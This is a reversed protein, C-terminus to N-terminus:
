KPTKVRAVQKNGYTDKPVLAKSVCGQYMTQEPSNIRIICLPNDKGLLNRTMGEINTTPAIISPM